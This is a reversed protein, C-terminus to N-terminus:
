GAASEGFRRGQERIPVDLTLITGAGPTSDIRMSGGVQQMRERMFALGFHGDQGGDDRGADFGRGDDAVTVRAHSGTEDIRVRVCGAGGHRRANSLAEQVVRLLQVGVAPEFADEGIGDAIALETRIGYNAQFKELYRGLTRLFSWEQAADNRLGLISERVDAHADQAVDALRELTAGARDGDGGRMWRLATQAQMAVYGLVQGIGDHLERAIRERERLTAVVEQQELLGAQARRQETLDHLLLLQGIPEGGRGMLPTAQMDYYRAPGPHGLVIETRATGPGRLDRAIGAALSPFDTVSRDRLRAAPIGLIAAGMPNVDVFRGELDLVFMGEGMQRLVATRAATVPDIFHFGLFAIAYASGTLGVTFLVLEGPGIWDTGFRGLVFGVRGVVQGFLIIAVPWRHRPSRFALWGLVGLNLVGLVLIYGNFLWFLPGPLPTLQRDMVFGAWVLHHSGNTAIAVANLLPVLFLLACTRLTLWRGLGAYQLIFCSMGVGVPPMWVAQFRRWHVQVALDVALIELIVGLVWLTSLACAFAYARAGTLHRRRWSYLGLFITLALTVIAPWVDPSYAYAGNM